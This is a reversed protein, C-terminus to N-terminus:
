ILIEMIICTVLQQQQEIINMFHNDSIVILTGLLKIKM